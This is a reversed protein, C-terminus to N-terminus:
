FRGSELRLMSAGFSRVSVKSGIRFISSDSTSVGLMWGQICYISRGPLLYPLLDRHGFSKVDKGATIKLYM